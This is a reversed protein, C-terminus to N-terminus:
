RRRSKIFADLDAACVRIATLIRVHPLEGRACLGYITATSVRLRRAVEAVSLLPLGQVGTPGLSEHKQSAAHSIRPDPHQVTGFPISAKPGSHLAPFARSCPGESNGLRLDGTRIRHEAGIRGSDALSATGPKKM